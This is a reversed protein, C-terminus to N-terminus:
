SVLTPAAHPPLPPSSHTNGSPRQTSPYYTSLYAIIHEWQKRCNTRWVKSRPASCSTCEARIDQITYCSLLLILLIHNTSILYSVMEEIIVCM